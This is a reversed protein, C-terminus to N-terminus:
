AAEPLHLLDANAPDHIFGWFAEQARNPVELSCRVMYITRRLELGSVPVEAVDGQERPCATALTSVFSIGFGAAVTRVIAEANGLELFINLDDLTIDHQALQTLM